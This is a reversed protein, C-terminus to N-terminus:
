CEEPIILYVRDYNNTNTTSYPDSATIEDCSLDTIANVCASVEASSVDILGDDIDTQVEIFSSYTTTDVGFFYLTNLDSDLVSECTSTNVGVYCDEIAVCLAELVQTTEAEAEGSSLTDVDDAAEGDFIGSSSSGGSSEYDENDPSNNLGEPNGTQTSGFLGCGSLLLLSMILVFYLLKNRKM